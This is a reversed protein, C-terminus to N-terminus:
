PKQAEFTHEGCEDRPEDKVLVEISTEREPM